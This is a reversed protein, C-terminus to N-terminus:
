RSRKLDSLRPLDRIQKLSCKALHGRSCDCALCSLKHSRASADAPTRTWHQSHGLRQHLSTGFRLIRSALLWRHGEVNSGARPGVDEFKLRVPTGSLINQTMRARQFHGIALATRKTAVVLVIARVDEEVGILICKSRSKGQGIIAFEGVAASGIDFDVKKTQITIRIRIYSIKFTLSEDFVSCFGSVLM